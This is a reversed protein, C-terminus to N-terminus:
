QSILFETTTIMGKWIDGDSRYYTINESGDDLVYVIKFVEGKQINMPYNNYPLVNGNTPNDKFDDYADEIRWFERSIYNIFSIKEIGFYSAKYTKEGIEIEDVRTPKINKGSDMYLDSLQIFHYNEEYKDKLGKAMTPVDDYFSQDEPDVHAGGYIGMINEGQIKEYAEIFNEAMMKERYPNDYKGENGYYKYGQDIIKKTMDYEESPYMDEDILYRLYRAGISDAQHGVDTGHFVTEPCNEKIKVFFNYSSDTNGSTGETFSFILDLIENNDEEMWINLFQATYYPFEVFLHRMGDNYYRQWFEYEAELISDAGHIEGYIYMQNNPKENKIFYEELTIEKSVNDSEVQETKNCATFIMLVVFVILLIKRYKKM